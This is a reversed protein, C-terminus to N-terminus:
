VHEVLPAIERGGLAAVGHRETIAVGHEAERDALVGPDLRLTIRHIGDALERARARVEHQIRRARWPVRALRAFPAPHDRPERARGGPATTPSEPPISEATVACRATAASPGSCTSPMAIGLGNEDECLTSSAVASPRLRPM